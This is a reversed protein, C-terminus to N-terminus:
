ETQFRIQLGPPSTVPCARCCLRRARRKALRFGRCSNRFPTLFPGRPAANEGCYEEARLIKQNQLGPCSGAAAKQVLSQALQPGSILGGECLYLRIKSCFAFNQPVPKFFDMEKQLHQRFIGGSTGPRPWESKKGPWTKLSGPLLPGRNEGPTEPPFSVRFGRGCLRWQPLGREGGAPGPVPEKKGGPNGGHPPISDACHRM